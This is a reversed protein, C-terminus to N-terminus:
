QFALSLRPEEALPLRQPTVAAGELPCLSGAEFAPHAFVPLESAARGWVTNRHHAKLAPVIFECWGFSLCFSLSLCRTSLLSRNQLACAGSQAPDSGLPQWGLCDSPFKEGGVLQGWTLVKNEFSASFPRRLILKGTTLSKLAATFGELDCM